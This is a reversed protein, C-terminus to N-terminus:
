RLRCHDPYGYELTIQLTGNDHILVEYGGGGWDLSRCSARFVGTDTLDSFRWGLVHQLRSRLRDEVEDVPELLSYASIINRLPQHLTDATPDKLYRYSQDTLHVEQSELKVDLELEHVFARALRLAYFYSYIPAAIVLVATLLIFLRKGRRSVKIRCWRLFSVSFLWSLLTVVLLFPLFFAAVFASFFWHFFSWSLLVLAISAVLSFLSIAFPAEKPRKNLNSM